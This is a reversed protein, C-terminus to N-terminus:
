LKSRHNLLLILNCDILKESEQPYKHSGHLIFLNQNTKTGKVHFSRKFCGQSKTKDKGAQKNYVYDDFIVNTKGKQNEIEFFNKITIKKTSNSTKTM